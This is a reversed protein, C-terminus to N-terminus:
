LTMRVMFEDDVRGTTAWKAWERGELISAAQSIALSCSWYPQTGLDLNAHQLNTPGYCERLVLLWFRM